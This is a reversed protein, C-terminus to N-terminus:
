SGNAAPGLGRVRDVDPIGLNGNISSYKNIYYSTRDAAAKEM